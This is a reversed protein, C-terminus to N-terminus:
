FYNIPNTKVMTKSVAFTDYKKILYEYLLEITFQEGEYHGIDVLLMEGNTDLFEHYKLDASIFADCGQQMADPILFAGSGGCFAVKHINRKPIRNHRLMKLELSSKVHHLFDLGSAPFELYGTM